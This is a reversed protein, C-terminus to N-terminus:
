TKSDCHRPNITETGRHRQKKAKSDRHRPKKTKSDQHRPIYAEVAENENETSRNHLMILTSMHTTLQHLNNQM